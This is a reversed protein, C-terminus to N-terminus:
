RPTLRLLRGGAGDELAFLAGDEREAIARIRVGMNYREVERAADGDIAVRVIGTAGMAAILVQGRWAPFRDCRCFIFGGPAIVPNWSVKPAAFQPHASHRPIPTGNYHDGESALPWGYNRGPEVLNLEDGGWPGHEINWLRGAGDFRLGLLNRHGLSWVQAAIGGRAAFPNGPAPSGDPLLRLVKGLNGDLDQAPTMKQRDGSTVFLFRGDPSFVLRHSYHGRGTVKPGQRWIVQLGELRATEGALVLRARGLAAGATGRPGAEAWSLYVMGSQTHDPALVVDGLGGQGEHVVRPVGTVDRVPGGEQWLKLRGGRETVLALRTGPIFALAWPEDFQALPTASFPNASAFPPPRRRDGARSAWWSALLIEGLLLTLLVPRLRM